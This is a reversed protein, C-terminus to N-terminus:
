KEISRDKKREKEELAIEGDKPYHKTKDTYIQEKSFFIYIYKHAYYFDYDYFIWSVRRKLLM